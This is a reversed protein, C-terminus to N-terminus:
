VKNYKRLIARKKAIVKELALQLVNEASELGCGAITRLSLGEAQQIIEGPKLKKM